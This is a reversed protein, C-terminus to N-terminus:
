PNSSIIRWFNLWANNYLVTKQMPYVTMVYVVKCYKMLNMKVLSKVNPRHHDSNLPIKNEDVCDDDSDSAYSVKVFNQKFIKRKGLNM